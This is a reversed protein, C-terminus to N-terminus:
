LYIQNRMLLQMYEDNFSSDNKVADFFDDKHIRYTTITTKAIYEIGGGEDEFFMGSQAFTMGPVFYGILREQGDQRTFVVSVMGKQLFFLYPNHDEPRVLVQGKKHMMKQGFRAFF